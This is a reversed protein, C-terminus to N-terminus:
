LVVKLYTAITSISHEAFWGGLIHAKNGDRVFSRKLANGRRPRQVDKLPYLKGSDTDWFILGMSVAIDIANLTYRRNHTVRDHISVLLDSDKSSEFSRVYSQLDKRMNSIPELLRESKLLPIALFHLLAVPADGNPHADCYGSTFRWLLYAGVSPSNWQRVEEVLTGM